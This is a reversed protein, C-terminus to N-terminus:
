SEAYDHKEKRTAPRASIIRLTDGRDTHAVVVIRGLETEGMTIFRHEASSHDADTITFSLPDGFATAAEEFSIGHKRLNERAKRPDWEFELNKM